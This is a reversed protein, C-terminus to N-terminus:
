DMGHFLKASDEGGERKQNGARFLLGVFLLFRFNLLLHLLAQRSLTLRLLLLTECLLL